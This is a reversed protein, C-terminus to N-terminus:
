WQHWDTSQYVGLTPPADFLAGFAQQFDPNTYVAELNDTSKWIDVALFQQPDELGTFVIHAIDGAGKVTDEGGAAVMDHASQAKAPDSEALHGRVVVWYYPDAGNTLTIDGWTHWEPRRQFAEIVPPASFLQGFAAQIQPDQYFAHMATADTWRDMATFEDQSTGLLSTGLFVHHAIDGAEKAQSEGGMAIGDHKEKAAALDDTFLPGRVLVAFEGSPAGGAGGGGTTPTGGTGGTPDTGGSGGTTEAGGSGGSGGTDGTESGSDCAATGMLLFLGLASGLVTRSLDNTM